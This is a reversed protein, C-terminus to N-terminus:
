VESIFRKTYTHSCPSLGKKSYYHQHYDDAKYFAEARKLKTQIDLGLALLTQILNLATRKEDETSYFIVSQYQKGIDGGQGDTQTPDHIEFFFEALTKYDTKNNDYIVEVAEYCDTKGLFVDKYTPKKATKSCMFGVSTDIVGLKDEFFYEIGWFCGGAFYATSYRNKDNMCASITCKAEKILSCAAATTSM